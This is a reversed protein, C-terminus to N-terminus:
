GGAKRADDWRLWALVIIRFDGFIGMVLFHHGDDELLERLEAMRHYDRCYNIGDCDGRREAVMANLEGDTRKEYEAPM